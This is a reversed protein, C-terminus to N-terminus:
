RQSVFTQHIKFSELWNTSIKKTHYKTLNKLEMSHESFLLYYMKKPQLPDEFDKVDVMKRPKPENFTCTKFNEEFPEGDLYNPEKIKCSIWSELTVKLIFDFTRGYSAGGESLDSQKFKDWPNQHHKREM